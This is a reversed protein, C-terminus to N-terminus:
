EAVTRSAAIILIALALVGGVVFVMIAMGTCFGYYAKKWTQKTLGFVKAQEDVTVDNM